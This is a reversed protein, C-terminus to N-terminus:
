KRVELSKSFFSLNTFWSDQINLPSSVGLDLLSANFFAVMFNERRLIRQSVILEDFDQGQIAIKYEGSKQLKMLKQVVDDWAM